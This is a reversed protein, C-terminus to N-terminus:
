SLGLLIEDLLPDKDCGSGLVWQWSETEKYGKDDELVNHLKNM